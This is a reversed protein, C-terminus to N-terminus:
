DHHQGPNRWGGLLPNNWVKLPSRFPARLADAPPFWLAGRGPPKGLGRPRLQCHSACGGATLRHAAAGEMDIEPASNSEPLM